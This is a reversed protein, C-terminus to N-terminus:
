PREYVVELLFDAMWGFTNDDVTQVERWITGEVDVENVLVWVEAGEPLVTVVTDGNPANRVRGNAAGNLRVVALAVANSPLVVETPTATPTETPEEPTATIGLTPRETPVTTATATPTSTPEPTSTPTDTATPAPLTTTANRSNLWAMPGLQWSQPNAVIVIALGGAVALFAVLILMKNIQSQSHSM